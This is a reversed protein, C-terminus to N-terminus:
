LGYRNGNKTLKALEMLKRKQKIQPKSAKEGMSIAKIYRAVTRMEAQTEVEYTEECIERMKLGCYDTAESVINEAIKEKPYRRRKLRKVLEVLSCRTVIAIRPRLSLEPALHGVVFIVGSRKRYDKSLERNLAGLRVIKTGFKDKGSFLRKRHVIDNIEIVSSNPVLKAISRAFSSKGTGPTGTIAVILSNM